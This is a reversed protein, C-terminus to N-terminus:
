KLQGRYKSSSWAPFRESGNTVTKQNEIRFENKSNDNLM